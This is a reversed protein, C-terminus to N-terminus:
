IEHTMDDMIYGHLPVMTKSKVVHIKM